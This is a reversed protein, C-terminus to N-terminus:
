LLRNARKKLILQNAFEKGPECASCTFAHDIWDINKLSEGQQHTIFYQIDTVQLLQGIENGREDDVRAKPEDLFMIPSIKGNKNDSLAALLIMLSTSAKQGSSLHPGDVAVPEKGDYGIFLHIEWTEPEPTVEVLRGKASAKLLDAFSEFEAIYDKMIEKIHGRFQLLLDNCTRELEERDKKLTRLNQVLLEVQGDQAEVVRVIEESVSPDSLREKELSLANLNNSMEKSTYQNGQQDIFNIGKVELPIFVIDDDSLGLAKVEQYAQKVFSTLSSLKNRLETYTKSLDAAMQLAQDKKENFKVKEERAETENQRVSEKEKKASAKKQAIEELLTSLSEVGKLLMQHKGEMEPLKVLLEQNRIIKTVEELEGQLENVRELLKQVASEKEPLLKQAEKKEEDIALKGCCLSHYKLHIAGDDDQLLGELTISDIGRKQLAHGEDVTEVLYVHNLADLYGEVKESCSITIASRISPYSVDKRTPFDKGSKSLSVRAGYQAEQQLKKAPLYKDQEVIIRYRNNGIYAEISKQWQRMEPKVSISDALMIYPIKNEELMLRFKKAEPKYPLLNKGLDSLKQKLQNLEAQAQSYIFRTKELDEILIDKLQLLDDMNQPEIQKLNKIQEDLGKVEIDQRTKESTYQNIDLNAQEEIEYLRNYEAELQGIEKEKADIKITLANVKDSEAKGQEEVKAMEIETSKQAEQSEFYELKKLKLTTEQVEKEKAQYLRFKQAKQKTVEFRSKAEEMEEEAREIAIEQEGLRQKSDDYRKKYDKTGKLDFILQFLKHPSSNVVERITDPSMAMLNRFDKTIGLCQELVELYREVNLAVESYAKFNLHLDPLDHFEGDFLYYERAWSSQENKYIRCCATVEDQFKRVSEFPRVGNVPLNDFAVRVVAWNSNKYVYFSFTRKSEFYSAGLMLRLGDWITTKGHGSPGIFANVKKHVKYPKNTRPLYGWYVTSFDKIM